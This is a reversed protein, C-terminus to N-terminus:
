RRSGEVFNMGGGRAKVDPSTMSISAAGIGPDALELVVRTASFGFDGFVGAFAAFSGKGVVVATALKERWGTERGSGAVDAGTGPSPGGSGAPFGADAPPYWGLAFIATLSEPLTAILGALM